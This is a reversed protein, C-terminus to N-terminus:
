SSRFIDELDSNLGSIKEFIKERKGGEKDWRKERMGRKLEQLNRELTNLMTFIGEYEVPPPAVEWRKLEFIERWQPVVVSFNFNKKVLEAFELSINEEGHVIFVKMMPRKFNSLWNLLGKQDAHASFGGLTHISAKVQVEEGFIKVIKKGDIIERGLTGVAQYGTFVIHASPRWLNHKLHHKIRGAECMGSASIVIAAEKKENIKKSEESTRTFILGPLDLPSRGNEMIVRSEDDFYNPYRKFVETAATALPSDIYVPIFSLLGRRALDGLIYILDQTREVAFAPIIVKEQDQIAKKVIEVLERETDEISKHLRNGYTSEIVLYDAEEIFSPDRIIPQKWNGIDGSFVVKVQGDSEKLWLEIIASGLIHGADRFRVQAEPHLDITQDYSVPSFFKLSYEVDKMTYLPEIHGKGSRQNKRNQWEADMQQVHASDKLMIECLDCTGETALIKGRFGKKVLLPILGCHDIHAHTLLLYPIDKLPPFHTLTNREQLKRNGQYM